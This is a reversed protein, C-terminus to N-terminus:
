LPRRSWVSRFASRRWRGWIGYGARRDSLTGANSAFVLTSLIGWPLYWSACAILGELSERNAAAKGFPLQYRAVTLAGIVSWFLLMRAIGPYRIDDSGVTM